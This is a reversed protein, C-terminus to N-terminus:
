SKTKLVLNIVYLICLQTCQPIIENQQIHVMIYMYWLYVHVM